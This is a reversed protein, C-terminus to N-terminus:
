RFSIFYVAIMMVWVIFYCNTTSQDMLDCGWSVFTGKKLLSWKAKLFLAFGLFSLLLGWPWPQRGEAYEYCIALFIILVSPTVIAAHIKGFTTKLYRHEM